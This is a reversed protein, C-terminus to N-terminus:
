RRGDVGATLAQLPKGDLDGPPSVGALRAFTPAVDVTSVADAIRSAGVDGGLVVLPVWQDYWYPSGHSTGGTSSTLLYGEKLRLMVGLTGLEDAPRGDHFSHRYLTVFSDAPAGARLEDYTIADAVFPLRELAAAVRARGASPPGSGANAAQNAYDYLRRAWNGVMRMGPKEERQRIEPKTLAGHDASLVAVWRGRGVVTDLSDFFAGLERDLRLLNDLQEQSLPGYGHGVYDTQSLGVALYDPVDDAGLSEARLANEAVTLVAEDAFPTSGVWGYFDRPTGGGGEAAFRHPFYTHVGDSEYPVTDADALTRAAPPVTSEWVTDARLRADIVPELRRLWDPYDKRYYTSTVFRGTAHDFWYAQGHARGLMLIASRDKGAVSFVKAEPKAQKLWDAFGTHLLFQPSRGAEDPEGVISRAPDEVVYVQHWDNGRRVFFQNSVIGSHSPYVGTGLTAHGPGTETIAHDHSARTYVAGQDLLRRFGGTYISDYRLLLDGRMQDVSLLVLLRPRAQAPASSVARSAPRRAQWGAASLLLAALLGAGARGIRKTRRGERM